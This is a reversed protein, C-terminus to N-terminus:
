ADTTGNSITALSRGNVWTMGWGIYTLPNGLADYAIQQGNYSTLQDPFASNGYSYNITSVPTLGDLSGTTYAYVSKSVINGNGDYNYTATKNNIGDNARILEDKIDYYYHYKEVGNISITVINGYSDYTYTIDKIGIIRGDISYTYRTTLITGGADSM